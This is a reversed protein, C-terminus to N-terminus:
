RREERAHHVALTRTTREFSDLDRYSVVERGRFRAYAEIFADNGDYPGAIVGPRKSDAFYYRKGDREFSVLWHRRLTNGAVTVPAFEIMLYRPKTGPAIARLAEAGFRALDVCVGSPAAYFDQPRHIALRRDQRQTESLLMARAMDYEFTAGIWRNVDDADRWTRLAAEYTPPTPQALAVRTRADPADSSPDDARAIGGGAAAFALALAGLCRRTRRADINSTV